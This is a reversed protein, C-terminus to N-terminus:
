SIFMIKKGTPTNIIIVINQTTERHIHYHIIFSMISMKLDCLKSINENTM